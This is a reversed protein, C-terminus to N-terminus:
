NSTIRLLNCLTDVLRIRYPSNLMLRSSLGLFCSKSDRRAEKLRELVTLNGVRIQLL